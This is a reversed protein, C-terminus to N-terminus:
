HIRKTTHYSKRCFSFLKDDLTGGNFHLPRVSYNDCSKLSWKEIMMM